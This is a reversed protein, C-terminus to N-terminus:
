ESSLYMAYFRPNAAGGPWEVRVRFPKRRPLSERGFIVPVRVGSKVVTVAATGPLPKGGDDVIAVQLPTTATVGEINLFLKGGEPLTLRTTLVSAEADRRHQGRATNIETRQKSLYGFGDRRMTLLGIGMPKGEVKAPIPAEPYQRRPNWHSYWILTETDTNHYAQAQLLAESDWEDAGGRPVVVFNQVPERYHIADNSIVLGLDVTLGFMPAIKKKEPATEVTDGYWRGYLGIIVNARNWIGAGMHLEQGLNEPAPTVHSRFFSLARGGSWHVFDPSFFATMARGADRGDALHGGIRGVNQGTLYYNGQFRTLSTNEFHGKTFPRTNLLRWRLGDASVATATTSFGDTQSYIIYAMKYRRAPDPDDEDRM